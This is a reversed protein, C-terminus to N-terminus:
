RRRRGSRDHTGDPRDVANLLVLLRHRLRQESPAAAREAVIAAWYKAAEHQEPPLALPRIPGPRLATAVARLYVADAHPPAIGADEWDILWTTGGGRRLNWPTLDRHAGRWHDPVDAPRPVTAEVLASIEAHAAQGLRYRPLHPRPSMAEYGVWHWGDIEGSAIMRPVQFGRAARAQAAASILRERQLSERDRRIRVLMSDTGACVLLTLSQRRSQLREYIAIGDPERGVARVWEPWMAAIVARPTPPSWSERAGPLARGGIAKASLWLGYQAALPIPKSATYLSMAVTTAAAPRTPVLVNHWRPPFRVYQQDFPARTLGNSPASGRNVMGYLIDTDSSSLRGRVPREVLGTM